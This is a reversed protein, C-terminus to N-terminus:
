KFGLAKKAEEMDIRQGFQYAVVFADPFGKKQITLRAQQAHEFNALQRAQYKYLNNEIIVEIPYELNRWKSEQLDLPKSSAAM